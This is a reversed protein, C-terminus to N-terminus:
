RVAITVEVQTSLNGIKVVIPVANDTQVGAPIQANVQFLGAVEGPAGGVYQVTATRGGITVSVPLNPQTLPDSAIKGDVGPPTTLGEGTAFISIVDGIKAPTATTNISGDQNVVAGPGQGTSDL